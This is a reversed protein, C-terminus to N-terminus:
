HKAVLSLLGWCGSVSRATKKLADSSLSLRSHDHDTGGRLPQPSARKKKKQTVPFVPSAILGSHQSSYAASSKRPRTLNRWLLPARRVGAAGRGCCSACRSCSLHDWARSSSRFVSSDNKKRGNKKGGWKGRKKKKRNIGRFLKKQCKQMKACEWEQRMERRVKLEKRACLPLM